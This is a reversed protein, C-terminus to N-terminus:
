RPGTKLLRTVQERLTTGSIPKTVFAYDGVKTGYKEMIDEGYGSMFVVRLRPYQERLRAALAPGDCGPLVVDTVLLDVAGPHAAAVPLASEIGEATLLEFTPDRLVRLVSRLVMADDDVVLITYAPATPEPPMNWAM